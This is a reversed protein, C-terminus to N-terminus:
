KASVKIWILVVSAILQLILVSGFNFALVNYISYICM